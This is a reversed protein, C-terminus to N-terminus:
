NARREEKHQLVLKDLENKVEEIVPDWDGIKKQRFLRMTPYWPSDSRNEFWRWDADYPLMVWAPVGLGGALHALSTDVGIVLDMSKMVAATDMFPGFTKDFMPDFKYFNDIDPLNNVDEGVQM